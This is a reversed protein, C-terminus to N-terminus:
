KKNPPKLFEFGNSYAILIGALLSFYIKTLNEMSPFRIVDIVQLCGIWLLFYIIVVSVKKGLITMNPLKM